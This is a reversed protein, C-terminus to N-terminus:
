KFAELFQPPLDDAYKKVFREYQERHRSRLDLLMARALEFDRRSIADSVQRAVVRVLGDRGTFLATALAATLARGVAFWAQPGM